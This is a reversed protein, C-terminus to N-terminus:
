RRSDQKCRIEFTWGFYKRISNWAAVVVITAVTCLHTGHQLFCCCCGFVQILYFISNGMCVFILNNTWKKACSRNITNAEAQLKTKTESSWSELQDHVYILRVGCQVGFWSVLQIFNFCNGHSSLCLIHNGSFLNYLSRLFHLAFAIFFYEYVSAPMSHTHMRQVDIAQTCHGIRIRACVLIHTFTHMRTHSHQLATYRHSAHRGYKVFLKNSYTLHLPCADMIQHAYRKYRISIAMLSPPRHMLRCNECLVTITHLKLKFQLQYLIYCVM